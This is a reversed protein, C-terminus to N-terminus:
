ETTHYSILACDVEKVYKYFEEERYDEDSDRLSDIHSTVLDGIRRIEEDKMGSARSLVNRLTLEQM